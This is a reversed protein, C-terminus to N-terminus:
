KNVPAVAPENFVHKAYNYGNAKYIEALHSLRVLFQEYNKKEPQTWQVECLAAMRPVAQYQVQKFTPIYETWINAQAGIVFKQEEPTLSAPVPEFSYVVEVPIFGGTSADPENEIDQSQHYDFYLHTNPTMIVNHKQMAAAVGGKVGRWSMVTANPALGGELIEDWGIISRGKTALYKEIRTTFYSQLRDEASHGDKAELHEEKIRAQCAPCAAWRTRPAEDGGIHIFKSPFLDVVEALVGEIFEFTSEKGLCLVDDSIGWSTLVKYPGGTCGLEPYSTLAAVMHGPMDIEPIITIYRAQAYAVIDRIQDQTYFGEYPIGDYKGWSHGLMTESRKSGIETLRPYKKIEIRWGQDETLHWHLINQNHLAQMDIFSKVEEVSFFHRCVDLMMGRYGFRPYDNIEVAPLILADVNAVEPLSKRITQVGYFNGAESAGHIMVNKEDVKIQYSENNNSKLGADLIIANSGKKGAKVKLELGSARKVYDALFVANQKLQDNGPSYLIKTKKTITFSKGESKLIEQPLPIVEYNAVNEASITSSCLFVVIIQLLLKKFLNM